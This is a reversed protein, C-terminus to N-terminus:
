FKTYMQLCFSVIRGMMLTAKELISENNQIVTPVFPFKNSM